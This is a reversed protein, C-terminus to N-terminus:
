TTKKGFATQLAQRTAAQVLAHLDGLAEEDTRCTVLPLGCVQAAVEDPIWDVPDKGDIPWLVVNQNPWDTTMPHELVDLRGTDQCRYEIAVLVPERVPEDPIESQVCLPGLPPHEIRIGLGRWRFGPREVTAMLSADCIADMDRVLQLWSLRDLCINLPEVGPTGLIQVWTEDLAEHITKTM